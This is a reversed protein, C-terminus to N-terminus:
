VMRKINDLPRIQYTCGSPTGGAVLIDLTCQPLIFGGMGFDTLTTNSGVTIPEGDLVAQLTITASNFAGSGTADEIAFMGVGGPWELGTVSATISDSHATVTGM